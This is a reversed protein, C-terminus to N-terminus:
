KLKSLVQPSLLAVWAKYMKASPHLGDSAILAIDSKAERSIPTIDLYNASLKATEDKNIKNYADIETAIRANNNADNGAFPTVSYDPISLVFVRSANGGTLAIGKKLLSIFDNRYDTINAGQYQNNVGILLTVFDYKQNLTAANIASTLNGTTWGTQAIIKVSSTFGAVKLQEVLQNPFNQSADVSQGITYSDGLALYTLNGSSPGTVIVPIDPKVVNLTDSKKSCSSFLLFSGLGLFILIKM